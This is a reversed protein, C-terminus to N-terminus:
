LSWGLTTTPIEPHYFFLLLLIILVLLVLVVLLWVVLLIYMYIYIYECIYMPNLPTNIEKQRLEGLDGDEFFGGDEFFEGMKSRRSRLDFFEGVMESRRLRLVFFAGM